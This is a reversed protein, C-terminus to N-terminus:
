MGLSTASASFFCPWQFSPADSLHAPLFSSFTIRPRHLGRGRPLRHDPRLSAPTDARFRSSHRTRITHRCNPSLWAVRRALPAGGEGSCRTLPLRSRVFHDCLDAMVCQHQREPERQDLRDHRHDARAPAVVRQHADRSRGRQRLEREDGDGERRQRGAIDRGVERDGVHELIRMRRLRQEVLDGAHPPVVFARHQQPHQDERQEARHDRQEAAIQRRRQLGVHQGHLGPDRRREVRKM